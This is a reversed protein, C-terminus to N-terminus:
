LLFRLPLLPHVTGLRLNIEVRRSNKAFPRREVVFTPSFVNSGIQNDVTREILAYPLEHGLRGGHLVQIFNV